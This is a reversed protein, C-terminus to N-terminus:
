QGCTTNSGSVTLACWGYATVCETFSANHHQAAVATQQIESLSNANQKLMLGRVTYSGCAAWVHVTAAASHENSAM